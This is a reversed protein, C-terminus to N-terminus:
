YSMPTILFWKSPLIWANKEYNTKSNETMPEKKMAAHIQMFHSDLNEFDDFVQDCERCFKLNNYFSSTM